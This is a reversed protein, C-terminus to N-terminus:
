SNNFTSLQVHVEQWRSIGGRLCSLDRREKGDRVRSGAPTSILSQERIPAHLLSVGSSPRRADPSPSQHVAPVPSFTVRAIPRRADVKNKKETHLAADAM